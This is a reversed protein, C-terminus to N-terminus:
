VGPGEMAMDRYDVRRGADATGACALTFGAYDDEAVKDCIGWYRIMGGAYPMFVRPKLCRSLDPRGTQGYEAAPM